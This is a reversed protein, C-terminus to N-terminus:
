VIDPTNSTVMFVLHCLLPNPSSSLNVNNVLSCGALKDFRKKLRKVGFKDVTFGLLKDVENLKCLQQNNANHKRLHNNLVVDPTSLIAPFGGSKSILM